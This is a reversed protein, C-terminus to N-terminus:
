PALFWFPLVFEMVQKATEKVASAEIQVVDEGRVEPDPAKGSTIADLDFQLMKRTGDQQSRLVLISDRLAVSTPGGAGAVVQLLTTKGKLPYVGPSKVAGVVTVRQSTFEEIFITVQPNQLYDQALRAAIEAALQEGTLGAASVLGILPLAIQGSSNVRVSRNMAEVGFVEVKLLDQPGIRYDGPAAVPGASPAPIVGAGTVATTGGPAPVTPSGVAAPMATPPRVADAPPETTGACAAIGLLVALPLAQLFKRVARM